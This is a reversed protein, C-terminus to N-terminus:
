PPKLLEKRRKDTEKSLAKIKSMLVRINNIEGSLEDPTPPPDGTTEPEDHAWHSSRTIGWHIDQWIEDNLSVERLRLTDISRRFRITVKKFVGEEIVREWTERLKVGFSRAEDRYSPDSAEYKAKLNPLISELFLLRKKIDKTPWPIEDVEVHGCGENVRSLSSQKLPVQYEAAKAEMDVYFTLDHTLIIVQRHKGEKILRNIIAARRIHDLSSVPDDVVIPPKGPLQQVESLFCALAVARHEGESLVEGLQDFKTGALQSKQFTVAREASFGLTVKQEVGLTKLEEHLKDRFPKHLFEKELMKKKDTISKTNLARLCKKFKEIDALHEVLRNITDKHMALTKRGLLSAYENELIAKEEPKLTQELAKARNELENIYTLFESSVKKPASALKTFDGNDLAKILEAKRTKSSSFFEKLTEAIKPNETSIERNLIEDDNTQDVNVKEIQQKASDLVKEAEKAEQEVTSEVFDRFRKLRNTGEDTLPQQCLVCRPEEGDLVPFSQDPYASKTSYERAAVWLTRWPDDGTKALPENQFAEKSLKNAAERKGTAGKKLTELQDKHNEDLSTEIKLIRQHLNKCRSERNRLEVAQKAADTLKSFIGNLKDGDTKEDWKTANVIEDKKTEANLNNVYNRATGEDPISEIIEECRTNFKTKENDIRQRLENCMAALQELLDLNFPVFALESKDNVYVAAARNDFVRICALLDNGPQGEEWNFEKEESSDSNVLSFCIKAKAPPTDEYNEDFVNPLIKQSKQGRARTVRKLIRSYGSKGSGNNGYILTIGTPSFELTEKPKLFMANEVDSVSLLVLEDTDTGFSPLHDASLPAPKITEGSPLLDHEGKLMAYLEDKDQDTLHGQLGLRRLADQQWDPRGSAWKLIEDSPNM